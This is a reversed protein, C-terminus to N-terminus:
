LDCKCIAQKQSVLIVLIKTYMYKGHEHKSTLLLNKVLLCWRHVYQEHDSSKKEAAFDYLHLYFRGSITGNGKLLQGVERTNIKM